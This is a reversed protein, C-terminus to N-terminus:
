DVESLKRKIGFTAERLRENIILQRSVDKGNGARRKLEILSLLNLDINSFYFSM